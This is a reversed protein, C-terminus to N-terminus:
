NESLDETFKVSDPYESELDKLGTVLYDTIARLWDTENDHYKIIRFYLEGKGPASIVAEADSKLVITRYATRLLVTAAACVINAGVPDDGAHGNASVSKVIREPYLCL